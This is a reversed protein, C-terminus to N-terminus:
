CLHVCDVTTLARFLSLAFIYIPFLRLSFVKRKIFLTVFSSPAQTDTGSCESWLASEVIPVTCRM